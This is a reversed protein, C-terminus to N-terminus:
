RFIKRTRIFIYLPFIIVFAWFAEVGYFLYGVFAGMMLAILVLQMSSTKRDQRQRRAFGESLHKRYDNQRTHEREKKIEETRNKIDEKVPDYFRPEYQFKKNRPLRTLSPIKM